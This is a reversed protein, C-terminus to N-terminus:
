LCFYLLKYHTVLFCWSCIHASSLTTYLIYVVCDTSLPKHLNYNVDIILISILLM